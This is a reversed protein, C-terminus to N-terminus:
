SVHYFEAHRVTPRPYCMMAPLLKGDPLCMGGPLFKEGVLLKVTPEHKEPLWVMVRQVRVLHRLM